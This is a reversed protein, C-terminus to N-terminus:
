PLPLWVEVTTGQREKSTVTISGEHADVIQKAISLGLGTGNERTTFFPEYIKDIILDPIGRGNDSITLVTKEAGTEDEAERASVQIEGEMDKLAICCNHLINILLKHIQQPDGWCDNKEPMEIKEACKEPWDHTYQLLQIIEKILPLLHVFEKEPEM